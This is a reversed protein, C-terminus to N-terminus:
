KTRCCMETPRDDPELSREVQKVRPSSGIVCIPSGATAMKDLPTRVRPQSPPSYESTPGVRVSVKNSKPNTVGKERATNRHMPAEMNPRQQNLKATHYQTLQKARDREEIKVSTDAMFDISKSMDGNLASNSPYSFKHM